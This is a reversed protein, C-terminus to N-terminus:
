GHNGLLARVLKDCEAEHAFPVSDIKVQWAEFLNLVQDGMLEMFLYTPAVIM